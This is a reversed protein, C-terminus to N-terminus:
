AAPMDALNKLQSVVREILDDPNAISYRVGDVPRNARDLVTERFLEPGESQQDLYARAYRGMGKAVTNALEDLVAGDALPSLEFARLEDMTLSREAVLIGHRAMAHHAEGPAPRPQVSYRLDRPITGIDAPRNVLAYQHM